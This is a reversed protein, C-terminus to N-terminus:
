SESSSLLVLFNERFKEISNLIFNGTQFEVRILFVEWQNIDM